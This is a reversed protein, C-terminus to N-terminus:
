LWHCIRWYAQYAPVYNWHTFISFINKVLCNKEGMTSYHFQPRTFYFSSLDSLLLM